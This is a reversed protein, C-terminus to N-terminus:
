SIPQLAEIFQPHAKIKEAIKIQGEATEASCFPKHSTFFTNKWKPPLPEALRELKRAALTSKMKKGSVIGLGVYFGAAAMVARTCTASSYTVLLASASTHAFLHEFLDLTWLHPQNAASFFDYFLYDAFGFTGPAATISKCFDGEVFQWHITQGTPLTVHIENQDCMLKLFTEHERAFPFHGLHNLLASLGKKELDFSVIRLNTLAPNETVADLCAFVQAACGMGLDFVVADGQHSLLGSSAVYLSWAEEYPGVQGHLTEGTLVHRFTAIGSATTTLIYENGDSDKLISM